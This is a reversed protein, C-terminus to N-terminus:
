RHGGGPTYFNIRGYSLFQPHVIEGAPLATVEFLFTGGNRPNRMPYLQVSIQGGPVIPEAFSFRVASEAVQISTLAVRKGDNSLAQIDDQQPPRIGFPIGIVLGGLSAGSEAPVSVEFTYRAFNYTSSVNDTAARKLEPVKSFFIERAETGQVPIFFLLVALWFRKM